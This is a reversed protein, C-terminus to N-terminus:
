GAVYAVIISAIAVAILLWFFVSLGWSAARQEELEAAAEARTRPPRRRVPIFAALILFLVAAVVLPPLWYGSFVPPGFAPLWLATGWPILFFLLFLPLWVAVGRDVDLLAYVIFAFFLGVLVAFIIDFIFM